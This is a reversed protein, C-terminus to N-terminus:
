SSSLSSLPPSSSSSSPSSIPLCHGSHWPLRPLAFDHQLLHCDSAEHMAFCSPLTRLIRRRPAAAVGWGPLDTGALAPASLGPGVVQGARQPRSQLWNPIQWSAAEPGRSRHYKTTIAVVLGPDQSDGWEFGRGLLVPWRREALRALCSTVTSWDVSLISRSALRTRLGISEEREDGRNGTEPGGDADMGAPGHEVEARASVEPQGQVRLVPGSFIMFTNLYM